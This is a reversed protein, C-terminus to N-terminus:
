EDSKSWTLARGEVWRNIKQSTLTENDAQWKEARSTCVKLGDDIRTPDKAEARLSGGCVGGIRGVDM